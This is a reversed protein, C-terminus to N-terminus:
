TDDAHDDEEPRLLGGITVLYEQELRDLQKQWRIEGRETKRVDCHMDQLTDAATQAATDSIRRLDADTRSHVRLRLRVTVPVAPSTRGSFVPEDSETQAASVTVFWGSAPVPPLRAPFEPFAPIGKERLADMIASCLLETM